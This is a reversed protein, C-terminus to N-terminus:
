YVLFKDEWCLLYDGGAITAYPKRAAHRITLVHDEPNYNTPVTSRMHSPGGNVTEYVHFTLPIVGSSIAVGTDANEYRWIMEYPQMRFKDNTPTTHNNHGDRDLRMQWIFRNWNFTDAATRVLVSNRGPYGRGSWLGWADHNLHYNGQQNWFYAANQNWHWQSTHNDYTRTTNARGPETFYELRQAWYDRHSTGVTTTSLDYLGMYRRRRTLDTNFQTWDGVGGNYALHITADAAQVLADSYLIAPRNASANQVLLVKEVSDYLLYTGPTQLTASKFETLTPGSADYRIVYAEWNHQHNSLFLCPMAQAPTDAQRRIPLCFVVNPFRHIDTGNLNNATTLLPTVTGNAITRRYWSLKGGAGNQNYAYAAVHYDYGAHEDRFDHTVNVFLQSPDYTSILAQPDTYYDQYVPFGRGGRDPRTGAGAPYKSNIAAAIADLYGKGVDSAAVVEGRRTAMSAGSATAISAMIAAWNANGTLAARGASLLALDGATATGNQIRDFIAQVAPVDIAVPM